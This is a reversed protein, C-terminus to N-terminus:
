KSGEDDHDQKPNSGWEFTLPVYGGGQDALDIYERDNHIEIPRDGKQAPEKTVDRRDDIQVFPQPEPYDPHM